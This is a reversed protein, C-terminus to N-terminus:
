IGKRTAYLVIKDRTNKVEVDRAHSAGYCVAKM